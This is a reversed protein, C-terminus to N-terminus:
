LGTAINLNIDGTFMNVIEMTKLYFSRIDMSNEVMYEWSGPLNKQYMKRGIINRHHSLQPAWSMIIKLIMM